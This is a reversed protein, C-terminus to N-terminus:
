NNFLWPLIEGLAVIMYVFICVFVLKATLVGLILAAAKLFIVILVICLIGFLGELLIHAARKPDM